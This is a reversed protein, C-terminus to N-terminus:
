AGRWVLRFGFHALRQMTPNTPLSPQGYEPTDLSGHFRVPTEGLGGWGTREDPCEVWEMVGLRMLMQDARMRDYGIESSAARGSADLREILLRARETPGAMGALAASIDMHPPMQRLARYATYWEDRTPVAYGEGCWQAFREAELPTLGTLFANWYNTPRIDQPSVRPNLARITDYWAEDFDSSPEACMFREFQIKTVPIWHIYADIADVRIMPFGTAPEVRFQLDDM